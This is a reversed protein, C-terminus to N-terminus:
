RRVYVSYTELTRLHKNSFTPSPEPNWSRKLSGARFIIINCFQAHPFMDLKLCKNKKNFAKRRAKYSLVRTAMEALTSRREDTIMSSLTNIPNGTQIAHFEDQFNSYLDIRELDLPTYIFDHPRCFNTSYSILEAKILSKIDSIPDHLPTAPRVIPMNSIQTTNHIPPPPCPYVDSM